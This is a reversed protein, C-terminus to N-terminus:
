STPKIVYTDLQNLGTIHSTFAKQQLGSIVPEFQLRNGGSGKCVSGVHWFENQGKIKTDGTQGSM